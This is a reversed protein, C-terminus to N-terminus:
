RPVRASLPDSVIGFGPVAGIYVEPHGFFLFLHQFLLPSGGNYVMPQGMSSVAPMFFSTGLLADLTMMIASVFLAPFALLGLVTAMFIGWVSLAMRMLAM